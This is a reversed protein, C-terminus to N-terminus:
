LNWLTFSHRIKSGFLALQRLLFDQRRQLPLELDLSGAAKAEEELSARDKQSYLYGPLRSFHCNIEKDKILKELEGIAAEHAQGYLAAKREGFDETLKKYIMGHQSTIKATTNKTQGGAIREAELVVTKLGSEELLFATLLGSMGAGIVVADARLEEELCEREPIEVTRSWISEM